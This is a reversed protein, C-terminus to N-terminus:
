SADEPQNGHCLKMLQQKLFVSWVDARVSQVQHFNTDIREIWSNYISFAQKQQQQQQKQQQQKQHQQSAINTKNTVWWYSIVALEVIILVSVVCQWHSSSVTLSLVPWEGEYASALFIFDSVSWLWPQRLVLKFSQEEIEETISNLTKAM